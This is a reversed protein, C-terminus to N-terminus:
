KNKLNFLFIGLILLIGFTVFNKTQKNFQPKKEINSDLTALNPNSSFDSTSELVPLTTTTPNQLFRKQM